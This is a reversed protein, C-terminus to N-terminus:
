LIMCTQILMQSFINLYIKLYVKLKKNNAKKYCNYCLKSLFIRVEFKFNLFTNFDSNSTFCLLISKMSKPM